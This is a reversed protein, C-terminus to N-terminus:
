LGTCQKTTVYPQEFFLFVGAGDSVRIDVRRKQNNEKKQAAGQWQVRLSPYEIVSVMGSRPLGSTGVWGGM